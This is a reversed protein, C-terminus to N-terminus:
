RRRTTARFWTITPQACLGAAQGGLWQEYDGTKLTAFPVEAQGGSADM